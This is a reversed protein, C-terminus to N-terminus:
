VSRRESARLVLDELTEEDAHRSGNLFFTPTGTVGNRRGSEVDRGVRMAYRQESL